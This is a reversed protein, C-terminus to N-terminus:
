PLDRELPDHGEVIMQKGDLSALFSKSVENLLTREVYNAICLPCMSKWRLDKSVTKQFKTLYQYCKQEECVPCGHNPNVDKRRLEGLPFCGILSFQLRGEQHYTKLKLNAHDFKKTQLLMLTTPNPCGISKPNLNMRMSHMGKPVIMFDDDSFTLDAIGFANQCCQELRTKLDTFSLSSNGHYVDYCHDIDMPDPLSNYLIKLKGFIDDSTNIIKAAEGNKLIHGYIIPIKETAPDARLKELGENNLIYCYIRNITQNNAARGKVIKKIEDGTNICDALLSMTPTLTGRTFTIDHCARVYAPSYGKEIIRGLSPEFLLKAKKEIILMTEKTDPKDAKIEREVFAKVDDKIQQIIEEAKQQKLHKIYEDFSQFQIPVETTEVEV